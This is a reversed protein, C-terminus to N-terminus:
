RIEITTGRMVLEQAALNAVTALVAFLVYRVFMLTGSRAPRQQTPALGTDMAEKTVM